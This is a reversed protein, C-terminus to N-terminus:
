KAVPKEELWALLRQSVKPEARFIAAGRGALGSDAVRVQGTNTFRAVLDGLELAEPEEPSVQIFTRTGATRLRARYEAVEVMPLRPAVLLMAQVRKRARALELAVPAMDGSAGVVWGAAGTFDRKELLDMVQAADGAVAAHLRGERGYWADPGTAGKGVAGFSGRPALLVVPHGAAALAAVLSDPAALTDAGSLAYLLAARREAGPAAPIELWRLPFDDQARATEFKGGLSRAIRQEQALLTDSLASVVTRRDEDSYRVRRQVEVLLSEVEADRRRARASLLALWRWARAPEGGAIAIEAFRRTWMPRGQIPGCWERIEALASDSHGRLHRAWARRAHAEPARRPM